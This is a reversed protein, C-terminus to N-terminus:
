LHGFLCLANRARSLALRQGPTEVHMLRADLTVLFLYAPNSVANAAIVGQITGNKYYPLFLYIIKGEGETDQVVCSDLCRIINAHRFKKYAAVENLAARVSEAGLPCRIKKLAFLRSSALDQALYVQLFYQGAHALISAAHPKLPWSVYSFGGEGLLKLIKFSRGNLKLTTDPRAPALVILM